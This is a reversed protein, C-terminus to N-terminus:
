VYLKVKGIMYNNTRIQSVPMVQHDGNSLLSKKTRRLTFNAPKKCWMQVMALCVMLVMIILGILMGWQCLLTVTFEPDRM